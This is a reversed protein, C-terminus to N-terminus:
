RSEGDFAKIPGALAAAAREAGADTFHSFDAYYRPDKGLAAQVEVVEISRERGIRRVVEEAKREMDILCEPSARPYFRVWGTMQAEDGARLPSAFRNAHTALVV